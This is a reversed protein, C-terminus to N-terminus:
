LKFILLIRACIFLPKNYGEPFVDKGPKMESYLTMKNKVSVRVCIPHESKQEELIHRRRKQTM